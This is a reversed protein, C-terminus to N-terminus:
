PAAESLSLNVMSGSKKGPLDFPLNHRIFPEAERLRGCPEHQVTSSLSSLPPKTAKWATVVNIEARTNM